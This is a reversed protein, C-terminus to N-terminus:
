NQHSMKGSSNLCLSTFSLLSPFHPTSIRVWQLEDHSYGMFGDLLKNGSYRAITNMTEMMAMRTYYSWNPFMMDSFLSVLLTTSTEDYIISGLSQCVEKKTLLEVKLKVDEKNDEFPESM